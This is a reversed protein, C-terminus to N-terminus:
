QIVGESRAFEANLISAGAAGRMLNHVLLWFNLSNGKKRFGGVKVAMGRPDMETLLDRNPQPRDDSEFVEIPRQPAMPLGQVRPEIFESFCDIAQRLSIEQDFQVVISELHGNMVPVRACTANVSFKAPTIQRNEVQGLIKTTERELKTEEESIHPIVNGLIDMSSLGHRGAGSIAQYTTVFVDRIGFDTLPKLGFVLGSTSCNSNTVIFGEEYEQNQVLSLHDPNIEPILIPVTSDMRHAGANTFVSLGQHALNAEIELAEKRPLASFVIDVDSKVVVDTTANQVVIQSAVEPIQGEITWDVAHKYENGASKESAVLSVVEFYPHHDLLWVFHQGVVGTAGMVCTRLKKM